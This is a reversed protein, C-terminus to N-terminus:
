PQLVQVWAASVSRLFDIRCLLPSRRELDAIIERAKRIRSIDPIDTSVTSLLISVPM